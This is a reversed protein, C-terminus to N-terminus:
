ISAFSNAQQEVLLLRLYAVGYEKTYATHCDKIFPLCILLFGSLQGTPPPQSRREHRKLLTPTLRERRM